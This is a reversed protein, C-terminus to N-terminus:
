SGGVQDSEADREPLAEDAQAQKFRPVRSGFAVTPKVERNRLIGDQEGYERRIRSPQAPAPSPRTRRRQRADVAGTSRARHSALMAPRPRGGARAGQRRDEKVRERKSEEGPRDAREREDLRRRLEKQELLLERCLGTLEDLDSRSVSDAIRSQEDFGPASAPFDRSAHPLDGGRAQAVGEAPYSAPSFSGCDTGRSAM